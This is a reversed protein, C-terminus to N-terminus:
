CCTFAERPDTGLDQTNKSDLMSAEISWASGIGCGVNLSKKLYEKRDKM